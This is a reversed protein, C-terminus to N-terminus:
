PLLHNSQIQVQVDQIADLEDNEDGKGHGGGHTTTAEEVVAEAPESPAV